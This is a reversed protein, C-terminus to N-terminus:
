RPADLPIEGARSVASMQPKYDLSKDSLPLPSPCSTRQLLLRRMLRISHHLHLLPLFLLLPLHHERSPPIRDATSFLLPSGIESRAFM